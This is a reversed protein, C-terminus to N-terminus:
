SAVAQHAQTLRRALLRAEGSSLTLVITRGNGDAVVLDVIAEDRDVGVTVKGAPRAHATIPIVVSASRGEEVARTIETRPASRGDGLSPRAKLAEDDRLDGARIRAQVSADLRLLALKNAVWTPHRGLSRALSSQTLGPTTDLEERLALAIDIPALQRRDLNEALQRMELDVPDGEIVAPITRLGAQKAAALRRHGYLVDFREGRRTVHIPQIIGYRKISVVFSETLRLKRRVNPGQDVQRIDLEVIERV